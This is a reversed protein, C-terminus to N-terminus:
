SALNTNNADAITLDAADGINNNLVNNEIFTFQYDNGTKGSSNNADLDITPLSNVTITKTAVVPACGGSTTLTLTINGAVGNATYTANAVDTPNNITGSSATWTGGTAGGGISGGLAISTAGQCVSLNAGANVTGNTCTLCTGVERWFCTTNCIPSSGIPNTTSSYNPTYVKGNWAAYERTSCSWDGTGCWTKSSPQSNYDKAAPFNICPGQAFVNSFSLVLLILFLFKKYSQIISLLMYINNLINKNFKIELIHNIDYNVM